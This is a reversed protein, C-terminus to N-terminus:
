HIEAVKRYMRVAADNAERVKQFHDLANKAGQQHELHIEVTRLRDHDIRAEAHIRSYEIADKNAKAKDLIEKSQRLQEIHNAAERVNALIDAAVKDRGSRDADVRVTTVHRANEKELDAARIDKVTEATMAERKQEQIHATQATKARARDAQANANLYKMDEVFQARKQDREADIDKTFAVNSANVEAIRREEIRNSVQTNEESLRAHAAQSISITDVQRSVVRNDATMTVQRNNLEDRRQQLSQSLRAEYNVGTSSAPQISLSM